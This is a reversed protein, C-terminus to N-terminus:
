RGYAVIPPSGWRWAYVVPKYVPVAYAVTVPRAAWQYVYTTVPRQVLVPQAYTARATQYSPYWGYSYVTGCGWWWCQASAPTPALVASGAVVAGAAFAVVLKKVM